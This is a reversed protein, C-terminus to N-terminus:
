GDVQKACVTFSQSKMTRRSKWTSKWEWLRRMKPNLIICHSLFSRKEKMANPTRCKQLLLVVCGATWVAM